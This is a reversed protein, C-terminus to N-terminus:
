LLAVALDDFLFGALLPPFRDLLCCIFEKDVVCQFVFGRRERFVGESV